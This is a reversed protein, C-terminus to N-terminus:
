SNVTNSTTNNSVEDDDIIEINVKYKSTKRNKLKPHDWLKKSEKPNLNFYTNIEKRTMGADLLSLVESISLVKKESNM